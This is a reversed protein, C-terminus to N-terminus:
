GKEVMIAAERKGVTDVAGGNAVLLVKGRKDDQQQQESGIAAAEEVVAETSLVNSSEVENAVDSIHRSSRQKRGDSIIEPWGSRGRASETSDEPSWGGVHRRLTGSQCCDGAAVRRRKCHARATHGLGACSGM